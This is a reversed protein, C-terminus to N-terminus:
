TLTGQYVAPANRNYAAAVERGDIQVSQKQDILIQLLRNTEKSADATNRLVTISNAGLYAEGKDVMAIGTEQVVGGEDLKPILSSLYSYAAAGAIGAAVVGVVPVAGASAMINAVASAISIAAMIKLAPIIYNNIVDKAQKLYNPLNSVIDNIGVFVKKVFDAVMKINETNKLWTTVQGVLQLVPGQVMAAFQEKINAITKELAEAHSAAELNALAEQGMVKRLKERGEVTALLRKHTQALSEGEKAGLQEAQKQLVFQKSLEETSRGLLDAYSQRAIANSGEWEAMTLGQANLEEMAEVTKNNLFLDRAKNLNLDKGLLVEAEFEKRISSEFDLMSDGTKLVQELTTGLKKARVIAEALAPINGKFNILVNSSTKAIENLIQRETLAIKNRAGAVKAAGIAQAYAQTFSKNTLAGATALAAMSEASAGIRKSIKTATEAFDRNAPGMFGLQENMEGYSKAIEESSLGWNRSSMALGRFTDRLRSAQAVSIGLNQAIEFTKQEFELVLKVIAMIISFASSLLGGMLGLLKLPSFLSMGIGEFTAKIGSGLVKWKSGGEEATEKMRKQVREADVLSGLFPVKQLAGIRKMYGKQMNDIGEQRKELKKAIALQATLELREEGLAQKVKEELKKRKSVSLVKNNEAALLDASLKKEKIALASLQRAVDAKKLTKDAIAQENSLIQNSSKGIDKMGAVIDKLNEKGITKTVNSVGQLNILMSRKIEDGISRFADKLASVAEISANLDDQTLNNKGGTRKKTAM